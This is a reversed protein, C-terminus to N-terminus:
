CGPLNRSFATQRGPGPRYGRRAHVTLELEVEEGELARERDLRVRVDLDPPRALALGVAAALLLPAAVVVPEPRGLVLGALLGAGGLALYAPLRNSVTAVWPDSM